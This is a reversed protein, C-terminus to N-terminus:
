FVDGDKMLRLKTLRQKIKIIKPTFIGSFIRNSTKIKNGM